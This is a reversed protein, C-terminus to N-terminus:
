FMRWSLWFRLKSGVLGQVLYDGGFRALFLEFGKDGRGGCQGVHERGVWEVMYQVVIVM